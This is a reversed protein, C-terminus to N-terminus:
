EKGQRIPLHAINKRIEKLILTVHGAPIRELAIQRAERLAARGDESGKMMHVIILRLLLEHAWIFSAQEDKSEVPAGKIIASLRAAGMGAGILAPYGLDPVMRGRSPPLFHFQRDLRELDSDPPSPDEGRPDPHFRDAAGADPRSPM